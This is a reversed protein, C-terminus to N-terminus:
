GGGYLTRGYDEWRIRALQASLDAERMTRVEPPKCIQADAGDPVACYFRTPTPPLVGCSRLWSVAAERLNM